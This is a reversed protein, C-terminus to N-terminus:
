EDPARQRLSLMRGGSCGWRGMGAMGARRCCQWASRRVQLLLIFTYVPNPPDYWGLKITGVVIICGMIPLVVFRGFVVALCAKLGM